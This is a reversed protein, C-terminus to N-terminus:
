RVVDGLARGAVTRKDLNGSALSAIILEILTPLVERLVRPTNSVVSKWVQRSVGSQDSECLACFV